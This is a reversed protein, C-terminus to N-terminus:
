WFSQAKANLWQPSKSVPVITGLVNSMQTIAVLKTKPTILDEIGSLDIHGCVTISYTKSDSEQTSGSDGPVLNAHHEMDTIVIEDGPRLQNRGVYLSSISPETTGRTFIIEDPSVGGMFSAVHRRTREYSETARQASM